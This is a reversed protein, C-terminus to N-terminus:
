GCGGIDVLRSTEDDAECPLFECTERLVTSCTAGRIDLVNLGEMSNEIRVPSFCNSLAAPERTDKVLM